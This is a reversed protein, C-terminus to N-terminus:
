IKVQLTLFVSRGDAPLIGPGPYGTARRTFYMENALNNVSGEIRFKSFQYSMSLDFIQYSPILGTVASPTSSTANTADTFQDAMFTYQLSAKLSKYGVRAGTKLNVNPVFEVKRGDQQSQRNSKYESDILALNCFVEGSWKSSLIGSLGILDAEGYSELGYIVARGINTRTRIPDLGSRGGLEGIRNNYDLYFFSVDYSFLSTAESRAGIDFSYGREDKTNPDIVLSNGSFKIDNFSISKYNQSINTYFEAHATPRYTLGVGAIIFKRPRIMEQYERERSIENGALDETVKVNYGKSQTKIYEFRAGPTISFKDTVYFINEFFVSANENPFRYDNRIDNEYDDFSFDADSGTSGMGQKSINLGHYYRGGVLLVSPYNKITYRKLYRAETAWNEFKGRILERESGDDEISVRNPRFGLSFRNGDLGFVKLNFENNTNFKHDLHLAFLNWNVEFWNRDRNSQRPNQAFMEDTLGGAQQALYGMQTFDVGVKTKDSVAYNVNGFFLHSNFGSNERWGDGRKYQFFTYYSIKNATGSASTFANYFGYSGLTQRATLELKKDEAPRKMAFNVLGGFQTGYQLSAAGRVIEIRGIGEAPPTYYSEPYGLADASIDYGNQRVNFNATRNPDLGRGGISLQLGSGDNEWINLGAVRAYIQRANNTATNAVLQEPIIVETKKGEYIGMNQVSRMRTFGFDTRVDSVVIEDLTQDQPSMSIRVLEDANNVTIEVKTYQYGLAICHLIHKGNRVDSFIFRGKNDTTTTYKENDLYITCEKVGTTDASSTIVGTVRYQAYSIVASFLCVFFSFAKLKM